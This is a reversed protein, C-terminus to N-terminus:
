GNLFQEFDDINNSQKAIVKNESAPTIGFELGLQRAKDLVETALKRKPNIITKTGYKTKQKIIYGEDKLEENLQFYIGAENCFMVFLNINAINLLGQNILMNGTKRYIDQGQKNLPNPRLRPLESIKDFQPKNDNIRCPQDTGKLIKVTDPINKRGKGM